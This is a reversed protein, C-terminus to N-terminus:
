ETHLNLTWARVRSLKHLHHELLKVSKTLGDGVLFEGTGLVDELHVDQHSHLALILAKLFDSAVEHGETIKGEGLVALTNIRNSGLLDVLGCGLDKSAFGGHENGTAGDVEHWGDGVSGAM